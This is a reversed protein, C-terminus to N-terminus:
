TPRRTYNIKTFGFKSMVVRRMMLSSVNLFKSAKKPFTQVFALLWKKGERSDFKLEEANLEFTVFLTLFAVSWRIIKM